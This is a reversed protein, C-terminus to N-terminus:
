PDVKLVTNKNIKEPYTIILRCSFSTSGNLVTYKCAITLSLNPRFILLARPFTISGSSTLQLMERRPVPQGVTSRQHIKVFGNSRQLKKKSLAKSRLIKVRGSVTSSGSPAPQRYTSPRRRPCRFSPSSDSAVRSSASSGTERSWIKLRSGPCPFSYKGQEATGRSSNIVMLVRNIGTRSFTIVVTYMCLLMCVYYCVYHCAHMIVYTCLLMCVYYLYM